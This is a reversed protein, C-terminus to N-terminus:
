EETEGLQKKIQGQVLQVGAPTLLYCSWCLWYPEQTLPPGIMISTLPDGCCQCPKHEVFAKASM